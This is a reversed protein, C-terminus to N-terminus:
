IPKIRPIVKVKNKEVFKVSRIDILIAKAEPVANKTAWNSSTWINSFNLFLLHYTAGKIEEEIPDTTSVKKNKEIAKAPIPIGQTVREKPSKVTLSKTAKIM